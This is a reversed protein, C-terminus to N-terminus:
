NSSTDFRNSHKSLVLSHKSAKKLHHPPNPKNQAPPFQHFGLKESHQKEKQIGTTKTM